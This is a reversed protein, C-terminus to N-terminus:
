VWPVRQAVGPGQPLLHNLYQGRYEMFRLLVLTTYWTFLSVTEQLLQDNQRTRRRLGTPSNRRTRPTRISLPTGRVEVAVHSGSSKPRDKQASINNDVGAVCASVDRPIGCHHLLLKIKIPPGLSKLTTRMLWRTTMLSCYGHSCKWPFRAFRLRGKWNKM